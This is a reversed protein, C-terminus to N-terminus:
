VGEGVLEQQMAQKHQKNVVQDVLMNFDDQSMIFSEDCKGTSNFVHQQKTNMKSYNIYSM